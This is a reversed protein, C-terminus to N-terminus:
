DTVPASVLLPIEVEEPTLGGHYGILRRDFGRPLLLGGPPALAVLDPMREALDPHPAGDSGFWSGFKDPEVLTAGTGDLLEAARGPDGKVMLSRSDGYWILEEMGPHRLLRKGSEPYDVHGHDSTGVVPAPSRATVASWIRAADRVASRYEHSDQGAVHAAVDVSPWYTFVLRGPTASLQVTAEIMEAASWVPEFRCGRYLARSLPSGDFGGPQVTVPEIGGDRLREWLNPAPLFSSTDFRVPRGDPTVFKLTNTVTGREALWLLHGLVGHAAAVTGTALTALSVTTTTPFPAHITAAVSGAFAAVQRAQHDGLGDFLILVITEGEPVLESLDSDLRGARASGTLRTELEAVLNVLGRGTTSPILMGSVM